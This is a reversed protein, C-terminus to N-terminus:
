TNENQKSTQELVASRGAERGWYPLIPALKLSVFLPFQARCGTTPQLVTCHSSTTCSSSLLLHKQQQSKILLRSRKILEWHLSLGKCRQSELPQQALLPKRFSATLASYDWLLQERLRLQHSNSLAQLCKHQPLRTMAERCVPASAAPRWWYLPSSTTEMFYMGDELCGTAPVPLFPSHQLEM